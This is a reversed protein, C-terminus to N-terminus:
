KPYKEKYQFTGLQSLLVEYQTGAHEPHLEFVAREFYQVTYPKGDLDSVETFANSIPYGQQPLGGHTLWYQLFKGCLLKGTEKFARCTGAEVNGPRPPFSTLSGEDMHIFDVPSVDKLVDSAKVTVTALSHDNCITNPGKLRCPIAKTYAMVPESDPGTFYAIVYYTGPEVGEIAFDLQNPWTRVSFYKGEKGTPIAYIELPPIGESPYSLDGTITGWGSITGPVKAADPYKQKLRFTGLQSLLVDYPAKNETHLEFVAREFYQVTYQKGNLDSIEKMESSIPFGQQPLAGNKLWYDLFRGALTKGTQPFTRTTPAPKPVPLGLPAIPVGSIIAGMIEDRGGGFLPSDVWVVTNGSISPANHQLDGGVSIPFSQKTSLDYGYIDNPGGIGDTIGLEWVLISGSIDLNYMRTFPDRNTFVLSTKRTTLDYMYVNTEKNPLGAMGGYEFWVILNGSIVPNSRYLPATAIAFEKNTTIDYGYIEYKGPDSPGPSHRGDLWVVVKGNTVPRSQASLAASILSEKGRTLDYMYIDGSMYIEGSSNPDVPKTRRYDIWVVKDGSVSPEQRANPATSIVFPINDSLSAGYVFENHADTWVVSAGDTRRTGGFQFEPVSNAIMYSQQTQIDIVMLSCPAGPSICHTYVLTNGALSPQNQNGEGGAALFPVSVKVKTPQELPKALSPVSVSWILFASLLITQMPGFRARITRYNGV